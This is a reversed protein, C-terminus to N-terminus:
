LGDEFHRTGLFACCACGCGLQDHFGRALVWTWLWLGKRLANVLRGLWDLAYFVAVRLSSLFLNEQVEEIVGNIVGVTPLRDITISLRELSIGCLMELYWLRCDM